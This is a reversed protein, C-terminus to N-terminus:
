PCDPEASFNKDRKLNQEHVAMESAIRRVRHANIYGCGVREAECGIWEYGDDAKRWIVELAVAIDQMSRQGSPSELALLACRAIARIDALAEDAYCAMMEAAEQLAAVDTSKKPAQTM